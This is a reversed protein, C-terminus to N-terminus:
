QIKFIAMQSPSGYKEDTEGIGLFSVQYHYNDAVQKSWDQFEQRTWEFRHDAHRFKGASLTEFMANYERNPTTIIVAKPKAKGFINKEFADMRPLDLHEIVEVLAAVDFGEFRPDSYTLASHILDIRARQAPPMEELYLRKSARELSQYSVDVGLIKEIGREKLLLKLLKGEGCGLDIISKAQLKKIQEVVLHLRQQHLTLKKELKEEQNDKADEEELFDESDVLKELALNALGKKRKFYRRTILEKEPHDKLWNEGKALLKDIEDQSIFYHKDNDLVPILIFLHKLVQHLPLNHKLRIKHYPSTGWNPFQEDLLANETHLGYGLPLFLRELIEKGGRVPVASLVIELPMPMEVLEPRTQCNANLASGFVKTLATSLFSSAVYPRDNVYQKLKFAESSKKGRIISIPNIELLLACTTRSESVEPYFVYAGGFPLSFRQCKAPHKHLLFGLDDAPNHTSTITLLMIGYFFGLSM